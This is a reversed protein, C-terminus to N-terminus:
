EDSGGAADVAADVSSAEEGSQVIVTLSAAEEGVGVDEAEAIREALEEKTGSKTLGLEEAMQQLDAKPQATLAAEAPEWDSVQRKGRAAHQTTFRAGRAEDLEIVDGQKVLGVGPVMQSTVGTREGTFRVRM